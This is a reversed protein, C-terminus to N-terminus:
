SAMTELTEEKAEVLVEAGEQTATQQIAVMMDLAVAV